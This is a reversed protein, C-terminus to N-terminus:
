KFIDFTINIRNKNSFNPEVEHPVWSPWLILDGDVPHLTFDRTFAALPNCSALLNAPNVLRLAGTNTSELYYVCSFHSKEHSHMVNRSGPANVNTWYHIKFKADSLVSRDINDAHQYFDYATNCLDLVSDILWEIKNYQSTSRWCGFNTMSTDTSNSVFQEIQLLIESRQLLTGVNKQIFIDSHFLPVIDVQNM